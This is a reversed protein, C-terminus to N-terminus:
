RPLAGWRRAADAPNLIERSSDPEFSFRSAPIIRGIQVRGWTVDLSGAEGRSVHVSSPWATGRRDVWDEWEVTYPVDAEPSRYRIPLGTIRDVLFVGFEGTLSIGDPGSTATARSLCDEFPCPHALLAIVLRDPSLPLRQWAEDARSGFVLIEERPVDLWVRDAAAVLDFVTFFAASVGRLRVFDPAVFSLSGRCHEDGEFRPSKWSLEMGARVTDLSRVREDLAASVAGTASDGDLLPVAPRSGACGVLALAVLLLGPSLMGRIM